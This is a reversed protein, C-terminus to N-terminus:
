CGEALASPIKAPHVLIAREDPVSIVQKCPITRVNRSFGHFRLVLLSNRLVFEYVM